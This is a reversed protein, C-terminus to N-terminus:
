RPSLQKTGVLICSALSRGRSRPGLFQCGNDLSSFYIHSRVIVITSKVQYYSCFSDHASVIAEPVDTSLDEMSDLLLNFGSEMDRDALPAPHLCTLLRSVLERERPHKDLSISIAKKVVDPHYEKCQLEELSRIVEDADCSEFYEDLVSKVQLKFESQTLMPGHVAMDLTPDFNKTEPFEHSTLVYSAKTEDYLPDNEDMSEPAAEPDFNDDKWKGKGHGGQKKNRSDFNGTDRGDTKKRTINRKTSGEEVGKTEHEDAVLKEKDQQKVAKVKVQTSMARVGEGSPNHLKGQFFLLSYSFLIERRARACLDL